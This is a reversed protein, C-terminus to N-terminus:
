DIAFAQNIWDPCPGMFGVCYATVVGQPGEGSWGGYNLVVRVTVTESDGFLRTLIADKEHM